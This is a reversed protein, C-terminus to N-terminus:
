EEDHRTTLQAPMGYEVVVEQDKNTFYNLIVQM